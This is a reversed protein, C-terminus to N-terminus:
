RLEGASRAHFGAGPRRQRDTAFPELCRSCVLELSAAYGGRAQVLGPRRVLKVSAEVAGALSAVQSGLEQPTFSTEEFSVELGEKPIDEVKVKM